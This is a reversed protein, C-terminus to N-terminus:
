PTGRDAKRNATLHQSCTALRMGSYASFRLCARLCCTSHQSPYQEVGPKLIHPAPLLGSPM